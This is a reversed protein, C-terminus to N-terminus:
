TMYEEIDNESPDAEPDEKSKTEFYKHLLNNILRGKNKVTSLLSELDNDLRFCMMKQSREGKKAYEKRNRETKEKEKKDMINNKKHGPAVGATQM